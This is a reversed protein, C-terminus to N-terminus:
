ENDDRGSLFNLPTTLSPTPMGVEFNVIRVHQLKNANALHRCNWTLLYDVNHFSAIALHLADGSPDAPMVKRQIYIRALERAEDTIELMTLDDLLGIRDVTVERNGRRLEDVVAVSSFLQWSEAYVKWWERTWQMKAVSETDTRLTYYASPITTEIYVRTAM